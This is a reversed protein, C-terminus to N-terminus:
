TVNSKSLYLKGMVSGVRITLGRQDEPCIVRKLILEMTFAIFQLLEVTVCSDVCNHATWKNGNFTWLSQCALFCQRNLRFLWDLKESRTHPFRACYVSIGWIVAWQVVCHQGSLSLVGKMIGERQAREERKLWLLGEKERWGARWRSKLYELHVKRFICNQSFFLYLRKWAKLRVNLYMLFVIHDTNFRLVQYICSCIFM